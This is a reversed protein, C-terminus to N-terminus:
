FFSLFYALVCLRYILPPIKLDDSMCASHDPRCLVLLLRKKGGRQLEVCTGRGTTVIGVPTSCIDTALLVDAYLREGWGKVPWVISSGGGGGSLAKKWQL